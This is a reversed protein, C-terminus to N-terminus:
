RTSAGATQGGGLERASKKRSYSSSVQLEAGTRRDREDVYGGVHTGITISNTLHISSQCLLCCLFIDSVQSKYQTLSEETELIKKVSESVNEETIARKAEHTGLEKHM